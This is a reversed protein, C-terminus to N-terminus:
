RSLVSWGAVLAFQLIMTSDMLLSYRERGMRHNLFLIGAATVAASVCLPELIGWGAGAMHLDCVMRVHFLALGAFLVLCAVSVAKAARVGFVVPITMLRRRADKEVDRIDFAICLAFIFVFREAVLFATDRAGCGTAMALPFWATVLTWVAALIVSKALPINRLGPVRRGALRFPMVYGAALLGATATVAPAAPIHMWFFMASAAALLFIVAVPQDTDTFRIRPGRHWPGISAFPVNYVALAATFVFLYVPSLPDTHGAVFGTQLALLYASLAVPMDTRIFFGAGKRIWGTM